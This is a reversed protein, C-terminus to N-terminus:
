RTPTCKFGATLRALRIVPSLPMPKDHEDYAPVEVEVVASETRYMVSAFGPFQSRVQRAAWGEVGISVRRVQDLRKMSPLRLRWLKMTATQSGCWAHVGIPHTGPPTTKFEKLPFSCNYVTLGYLGYPGVEFLGYPQSFYDHSITWHKAVVRWSVMPCDSLKRSSAADGSAVLCGASVVVSASTLAIRWWAIRCALM